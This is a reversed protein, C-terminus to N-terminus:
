VQVGTGLRAPKRTCTPMIIIYLLLTDNIIFKPKRESIHSGPQHLEQSASIIKPNKNENNGMMKTGVTGVM